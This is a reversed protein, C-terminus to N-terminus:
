ARKFWDAQPSTEFARVREEATHIGPPNEYTMFTLGVPVEVIPTRDKSPTWPHRNANAYYRISTAIANNVWLITAHTLLDDKSFVTM